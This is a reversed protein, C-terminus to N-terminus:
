ELMKKLFILFSDQERFYIRPIFNRLSGGDEEVSAYVPCL